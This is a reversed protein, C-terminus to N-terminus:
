VGPPAKINSYDYTIAIHMKSMADGTDVDEEVRMVLGTSKAVWVDGDYKGVDNETHVHYVTTAQGGIAEDRVARCRYAKASDINEKEQQLMEAVSIPSSRWKGESMVYNKGNILIADTVSNKGQLTNTSHARHPTAITKLEADSAIKCSAVDKKAQAPLAASWSGLALLCLTLRM